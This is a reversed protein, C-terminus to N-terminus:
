RRPKAVMICSQGKEFMYGLGFDIDRRGQLEIARAIEPQHYETFIDLVGAYNGFYQVEWGASAFSRVPIGSDDQVVLHSNKLIGSRITNFGGSHMLYSASKLYTATSGFRRVFCLLRPDKDLSGDALNEQFYYINATRGWGQRCRVVYGPCAAGATGNQLNGAADLGLASVEQIDAGLRALFTLVIPLTGQLRTSQLDRRMDKTIFFSCNLATTISTYIGDLGGEREEASLAALDPMLQPGELGVLIYNECDPFFAQAFLIDPGSFPYFLTSQRRSSGLADEAFASIRPQRYSSFQRWLEDM